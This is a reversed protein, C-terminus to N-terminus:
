KKRFIRQNHKRLLERILRPSSQKLKFM